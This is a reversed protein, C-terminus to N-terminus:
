ILERERGAANVDHMRSELSTGFFEITKILCEGIVLPLPGGPKAKLNM